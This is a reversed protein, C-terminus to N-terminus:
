PEGHSIAAAIARADIGIERLAGSVPTTFGLFRLRPAQPTTAAGHVVPRGDPQLVGLHGVLEELGCRYGTAAIVVDPARRSGDALVVDRGDFRAVNAVVTVRGHRLEELLGADLLPVTGRDRLTSFVGGTAAPMGYRTLDGVLAAQIPRAALDAVPVPVRRLLIGVLQAPAGLITRPVVQPASRVALVVEAAGQEVLDVAIEAGSNGVGVVLVRRGRYAAGTRYASSHLLEGPWAERGPWDPIWPSHSLGTAVVVHGAALVGGTTTALWGDGARDLREATVGFRPRIGHRAAYAELYEVVSARAVYRGRRWPIAMGPLGSFARATHLHLCDYHARWATGVDDGREVVTTTIARARLEAAVALGAPGAGIVLATTM